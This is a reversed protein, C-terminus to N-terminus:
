QVYAPNIRPKILKALTIVIIEIARTKRPARFVSMIGICFSIEGVRIAIAAIAKARETTYEEEIKAKMPKPKINQPAM